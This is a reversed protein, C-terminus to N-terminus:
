SQKMLKGYVMEEITVARGLKKELTKLLAVNHEKVQEDSFYEAEMVWPYECKRKSAKAEVRDRNTGAAVIRNKGDLGMYGLIQSHQIPIFDSCDLLSYLQEDTLEEVKDYELTESM